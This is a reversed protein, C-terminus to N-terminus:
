TTLALNRNKALRLVLEYAGFFGGTYFLDGFLTGQFFPIGAVYSEWLGFLGRDYSGALWVGANTILFFQVSCFLSAAIVNNISKHSRLWLGILGSILFSGYVYIIGSYLAAQPPYIHSFDIFKSGFPHIYLLLYDSILLTALPLVLSYRKSLYTGGFLGMATIPAFNPIHPVLRLVVAALVFILPGTLKELTKQM